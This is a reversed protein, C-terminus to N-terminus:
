CASNLVSNWERTAEVVKKKFVWLHSGSEEAHKYAWSAIANTASENQSINREAFYKNIVPRNECNRRVWNELHDISALYNSKDTNCGSCSLVFNHGLDTPYRSWPIFHDVEGNNKITKSCYFCINQQLEKLLDMYTGLTNRQSGFLFSRLPVNEGLLQKGKGDISRIKQLWAGQSMTIVQAYLKRFCFAVGPKLIVQDVRKQQSYLFEDFSNNLRQLRWLPGDELTNKIAALTTKYEGANSAFEEYCDGTTSFIGQIKTIVEIQKKGANQNLVGGEGNVSPFMKAQQWYLRIFKFAIEEKTLTLEEGSDDGKEISLDALAVLLAFKYTSSFLGEDLLRQIKTLFLLQDEATPIKESM